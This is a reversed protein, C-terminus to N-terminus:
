LAFWVQQFLVDKLLMPKTKTAKPAPTEGDGDDQVNFFHKSSDYIEPDKSRLKKLTELIQTETEEAIFGDDQAAYSTHCYQLCGMVAM